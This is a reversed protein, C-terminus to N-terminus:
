KIERPAIKVGMEGIWFNEGNSNTIKFSVYKGRIDRSLATRVRELTMDTNNPTITFTKGTSDNETYVILTLNGEAKLDCLFARLRKFAEEHVPKMERSEDYEGFNMYGTQITSNIASGDFNNGSNIIAINGIDRRTGLVRQNEADYVLSSFPSNDTKTFYGTELNLIYGINNNAITYGYSTSTVSASETVSSILDSDTKYEMGIITLTLDQTDSISTDAVATAQVTFNYTGRTTPTGSILGDSSLSLGPPLSGATVTWNQAAKNATLQASYATGEYGDSLSTTTIAFETYSVRVKVSDCYATISYPDVNDLWIEIYFSSSEVDAKTLATSTDSGSDINELDKDIGGLLIDSGIGNVKGYAYVSNYFSSTFYGEFYMTVSDILAKSPLSFGFNYAKINRTRSSAGVSSSARINDSAKVNNIGSWSDGSGSTTVSGPYREQYAM